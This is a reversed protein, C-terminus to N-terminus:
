WSDSSKHSERKGGDKGRERGRKEEGKKGQRESLTESHVWPHDQVKYREAEVKQVTLDSAVM